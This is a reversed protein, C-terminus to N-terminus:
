FQVRYVFDPTFGLQYQTSIADTGRFFRYAFVNRRNTLNTFDLLLHHTIHRADYRLGIKADWRFFMPYQAAYPQTEDYVETGSLKSQEVDFPTYWRGGTASIKTDTTFTWSRFLM